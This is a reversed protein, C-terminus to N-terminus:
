YWIGPGRPSLPGPWPTHPGGQPAATISAARSHPRRSRGTETMMEALRQSFESPLAELLMKKAFVQENKEAKPHLALHM